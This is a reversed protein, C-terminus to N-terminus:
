LDQLGEGEGEILTNREGNEGKVGGWSLGRCQPDSRPMDLHKEM